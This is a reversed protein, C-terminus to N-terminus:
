SAADIIEPFVQKWGHRLLHQPPPRGSVGSRAALLLLVVPTSLRAGVRPAWCDESAVPLDPNLVVVDAPIREGDATHVAV